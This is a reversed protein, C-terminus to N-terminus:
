KKGRPKRHYAWYLADAIQNISREQMIKEGRYEKDGHMVVHLLEHIVTQEVGGDPYAPDVGERIIIKAGMNRPDYECTGCEGPLEGSKAWRITTTWDTIRLREQWTRCLGRLTAITM